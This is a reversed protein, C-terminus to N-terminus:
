PRLRCNLATEDSRTFMAENGKSWFVFRDNETDAEYKTGSAAPVAVLAAANDPWRLFAVGPETAILVVTLPAVLGDCAFFMPKSFLGDADQKESELDPQIPATGERLYWGAVWGEVGHYSIQCWRRQRAVTREADTAVGWEAYSLGGVCGLNKLGNGDFPISGIKDASAFGGSRINLVDDSAVGDVRFYDPGAADALVVAAWIVLLVALAFRGM